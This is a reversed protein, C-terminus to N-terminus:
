GETGAAEGEIPPSVPATDQVHATRQLGQPFHEKTLLKVAALSEDTPLPRCGDLLAGISRAGHRYAHVQLLTDVMMPDIRKAVFGKAGAWTANYLDLQHRLIVARRLARQVTHNPGRIDLTGRLRSIFDLHKGYRISWPQEGEKTTEPTEFARFSHATGGAFVYIAQRLTRTRGDLLWQGDEMPALFWPLWGLERSGRPADFEDFFVVPLEGKGVLTPVEALALALSHTDEIQTLNITFFRFAGAWNPPEKTDASYQKLIEKVAFSKGAGPPGFLALCLPRPPGPRTLWTALTTKLDKLEKVETEDFAWLKGFSTAGPVATLRGRIEDTFGIEVLERALGLEPEATM